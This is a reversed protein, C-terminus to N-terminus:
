QRCECDSGVIASGAAGSAASGKLWDPARDAARIPAPLRRGFDQYGKPFRAPDHRYHRKPDVWSGNIGGRRNLFQNVRGRTYRNVTSRSISHSWEKGTIRSLSRPGFRLFVAKSIGGGVAGFAGAFVIDSFTACPNTFYELGAGILFGVFQPVFEGTPDTNSLPNQYM